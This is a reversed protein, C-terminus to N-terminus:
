QGQAEPCHANWYVKEVQVQVRLLVTLASLTIIVARWRLRPTRLALLAVGQLLIPAAICGIVILADESSYGWYNRGSQIGFEAVAIAAIIMAIAGVRPFFKELVACPLLAIPGALVVWFIWFEFYHNPLGTLKDVQFMEAVPSGFM